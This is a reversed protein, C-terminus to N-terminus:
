CKIRKLKWIKKVKNELHISMWIEELPFQSLEYINKDHYIHFFSSDLETKHELLNDYVYASFQKIRALKHLEDYLIYKDVMDKIIDKPHGVARTTHELLIVLFLLAWMIDFEINQSVIDDPEDTIPLMLNVDNFRHYIPGYLKWGDYMDFLCSLIWYAESYEIRPVSSDYMYIDRGGVHFVLSVYHNHSSFGDDIILHLMTIYVKDKWKKYKWFKKLDHGDLIERAQRMKTLKDFTRNNDLDTYSLSTAVIVPPINLVEVIGTKHRDDILKNLIEEIKYEHLEQFFTYTSEQITDVSVM